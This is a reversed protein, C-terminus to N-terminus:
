VGCLAKQGRSFAEFFCDKPLAGVKRKKTLSPLKFHVGEPKYLRFRLYLAQPESTCSAAVLAKLPIDENKELWTLFELVKSLKGLLLTIHSPHGQIISVKFSANQWHINAL